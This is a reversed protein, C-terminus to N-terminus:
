KARTSVVVAGVLAALLLLSLVEFPLVWDAFVAEGMAAAGGDRGAPDVRIWGFAATVVVGLGLGIGGAAVMGPWRARDLDDSADTPAKTLMTAFLLLVVIAGVYVLVLVWALFEATLVLAAGAIGAFAVALWLGARVIRRTTVVALAAGLALLGFALLLVDALTM